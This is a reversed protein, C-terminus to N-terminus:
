VLNLKKFIYTSKKINGIFDKKKFNNTDTISLISAYAIKACFSM